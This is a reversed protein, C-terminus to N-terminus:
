LNPVSGNCSWAACLNATASRRGAICPIRQIVLFFYSVPYSVSHPRGLPAPEAESDIPCINGLSLSMKTM